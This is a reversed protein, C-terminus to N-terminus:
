IIQEINYGSCIKKILETTWKNNCKNISAIEFGCVARRYHPRFHFCLFLFVLNLLALNWNNLLSNCAIWTQGAEWCGVQLLQDRLRHHAPGLLTVDLVRLQHPLHEAQQPPLIITDPLQQPGHPLAVGDTSGRDLVSDVEQGRQTLDSRQQRDAHPLLLLLKHNISEPLDLGWLLKTSTFYVFIIPEDGTCNMLTFPICFGSIKWKANKFKQNIHPM